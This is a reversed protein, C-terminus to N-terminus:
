SRCRDVQILCGHEADMGAETAGGRTLIQAVINVIIGEYDDLLLSQSDILDIAVCLLGGSGSYSTEGCSGGFPGTDRQFIRLFKATDNIHMDRHREYRDLVDAFYRATPGTLSFATDLEEEDVEGDVMIADIIELLCDSLIACTSVRKLMDFNDADARQLIAALGKSGDFDALVDKAADLAEPNSM